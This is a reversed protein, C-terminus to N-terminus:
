IVFIFNTLIVLAVVNETKSQNPYCSHQETTRKHSRNETLIPVKTEHRQMNVAM